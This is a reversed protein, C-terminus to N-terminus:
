TLRYAPANRNLEQADKDPKYYKFRPAIKTLTAEMDVPNFDGERYFYRTYM